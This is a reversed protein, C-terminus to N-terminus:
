QDHRLGVIQLVATAARQGRVLIARVLSGQVQHWIRKSFITGFRWILVHYEEPVTFM